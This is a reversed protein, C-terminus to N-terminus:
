SHLYCIKGDADFEATVEWDGIGYADIVELISFYNEMNGYGKSAYIYGGFNDDDGDYKLGSTGIGKIENSFPIDKLERLKM